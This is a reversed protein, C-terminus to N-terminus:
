LYSGSAMTASPSAAPNRSERCHISSRARNARVHKLTYALDSDPRPAHTTPDHCVHERDIPGTNVGQWGLIRAVVLSNTALPDDRASGGTGWSGRGVVWSGILECVCIGIPM